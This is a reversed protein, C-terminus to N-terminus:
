SEKYKLYEKIALITGDTFTEPNSKIKKKIEALSLFKVEDIEERNFKIGDMSNIKCFFVEDLETENEDTYRIKSIKRVKTSISLEEKLGRVAADEYSEGIDNHEGLIEWKGPNTDKKMSRKSLLIDGKNNTVVVFVGRHILKPNSHCDSRLARGIVDDKENVIDFFEQKM